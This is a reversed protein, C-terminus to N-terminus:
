HDNEKEKKVKIKLRVKEDDNDNPKVGDETVLQWPKVDVMAALRDLNSVGMDHTLWGQVLQRYLGADKCARSLSTGKNTLAIALNGKIIEHITMM